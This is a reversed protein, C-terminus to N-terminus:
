ANKAAPPVIVRLANPVVRIEVPTKGIVEGDAQVRLPQDTKFSAFERILIHKLQKQNKQKAPIIFRGLVGLYDLLTNARVIFMDLAGDDAEVAVGELQPQLGMFKDNTIMVESATFTMRRGDVEVQFRHMDANHVSQIARGLYALMGFKQKEERATYHITDASVGISVNLVYYADGVQILDMTKINHEDSTILQLSDPLALPINLDRALNNATGLPLIGLPVKSNVLGSVVAAITGDGGAALVCDVNEKIVKRILGTLDEDPKTEHVEFEWGSTEGFTNITTRADETDNVGSVPNMVILVKKIQVSQQTSSNSTM